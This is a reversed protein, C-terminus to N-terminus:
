FISIRLIVEIIGDQTYKIKNIVNTRCDDIFKVIYEESEKHNDLHNKSIYDIINIWDHPSSESFILRLVSFLLHTFPESLLNQLEHVEINEFLHPLVYFESDRNIYGLGYVGLAKLEKAEIAFAEHYRINNTM